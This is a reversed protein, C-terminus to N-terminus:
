GIARWYNEGEGLENSVIGMAVSIKRGVVLETLAWVLADLRDPSHPDGAEWSCMQEELKPFSGVHKVKGREYATAV